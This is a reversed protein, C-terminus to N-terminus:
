QAMCRARGLAPMKAPPAGWRPTESTLRRPSYICINLAKYRFVVVPGVCSLPLVCLLIGFYPKYKLPFSYIIQVAKTRIVFRDRTCVGGM